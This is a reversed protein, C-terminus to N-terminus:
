NVTERAMEERHLWHAPKIREWRGFENMVEFVCLSVDISETSGYWDHPDAHMKIGIKKLRVWEDNTICARKRLNEGNLLARPIIGFRTLGQCHQIMEPLTMSTIVGDVRKAKVATPEFRQNMSFWVVPHENKPVNETAGHIFGCFFIKEARFGTTYHWVLISNQKTEM